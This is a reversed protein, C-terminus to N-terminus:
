PAAYLDIMRLIADACVPCFPQEGKSFMMCDLVPRYLGTAQYGAGEFCGVAKGFQAADPPTPCPVEPPVRAAWKPKGDPLLATINPEWPEVGKPYFEEYAVGSSYYEDALGAFSHGFEHIMVYEDYENDSPFIAFLNFVGGGGYRSTNVLVILVDYPATGAIDRLARGDTTTLYRPSGFTDFGTSLATKRWVGKAPEDPGTEASVVDLARLNIRDQRLRFPGTEFFARQFRDLDHHYKELEDKTYGDGLVLVDLSAQPPGIEQLKVVPFEGVAYRPPAIRPDAPDVAFRQVVRFVGSADRTEFVVQAPSKPFPVRASETFARRGGGKAEPTTQWENFLSGFGRSYLVEGEGGEGSPTAGYVVVRHAGYGTPDVLQTRSGPWAGERILGELSVEETKDTGSHVYDIRLTADPVFWSEFPVDAAAPRVPILALALAVLLTSATRIM